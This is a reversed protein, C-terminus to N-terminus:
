TEETYFLVAKLDETEELNGGLASAMIGFTAMIKAYHIVPLSSSLGSWNLLVKHPLIYIIIIAFLFVSLWFAIIGTLLTGILVIRSRVAQEMIKDSRAIKHLNQGFYLSFTTLMIIVVSSVNVWNTDLSAGMEWAEASLFLFIVSIVTTVTFKGLHLMMLWSRLLLIDRLISLGEQKLLHLYFFIQGLKSGATTEELRPDAIKKLYALIHEKEGRTWDTNNIDTWNILPAMVSQDNHDLGWLHGLNHKCLALIQNITNLLSISYQSDGTTCALQTTNNSQTAHYQHTVEPSSQNIQIKSPSEFIRATSIIATELMNSSVANVIQNFRPKLPMNTFVLAFDFGYELKLNSGFELLELPDQLLNQPFDSREVVPLKWTFQPFTTQLESQLLNALEAITQKFKNQESPNILCGIIINDQKM